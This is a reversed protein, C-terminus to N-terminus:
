KYGSRKFFGSRKEIPGGSLLLTGDVPWKWIRCSLFEEKMGAVFRTGRIKGNESISFITAYHKNNRTEEAKCNISGDPNIRCVWKDGSVYDSHFTDVKIGKALITASTFTRTDANFEIKLTSAM